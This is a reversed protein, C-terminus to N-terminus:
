REEPHTRYFEERSKLHKARKLIAKLVEGNKDGLLYHMKSGKSYFIIKGKKQSEEEDLYEINSYKFEYTKTYKRMTFCDSEITYYYYKISPLFSALATVFVAGIIAWQRYDWKALEGTLPDFIFM